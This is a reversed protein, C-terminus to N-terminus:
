AIAPEQKENAKGVAKLFEDHPISLGDCLRFMTDAHPRTRLGSEILSLSSLSIGCVKAAATMTLGAPERYQRVLKGVEGIAAAPARGRVKKITSRGKLKTLFGFVM